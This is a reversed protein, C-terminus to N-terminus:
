QEPIDFHYTKVPLEKGRIYYYINQLDHLCPIPVTLLFDHPTLIVHFGQEGNDIVGMGDYYWMATVMDWQFGLDEILEETVPIGQLLDMRCACTRKRLEKTTSVIVCDNDEQDIYFREIKVRQLTGDAVDVLNGRRLDKTLEM